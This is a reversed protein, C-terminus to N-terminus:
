RPPLPRVSGDTWLVGGEVQKPQAPVLRLSPAPAVVSPAAEEGGMLIWWFHNRINIDQHGGFELTLTTVFVRGAGYAYSAYVPRPDSSGEVLIVEAGAPLIGELSGHNHSCFGSPDVSTDDLDDATGQVGDPGVRFPHDPGVSFTFGGCESSDDAIGSLGPIQYGDGSVNDGAHVVLFGGGAVWAELASQADPHNVGLVPSSGNSASTLIVVSTSSPIGDQLAVTKAVSYDEGKTLGFPSSQLVVEDKNEGFWANYDKYIVIEGPRRAPGDVVDESITFDATGTPHAGDLTVTRSSPVVTGTEPTGPRVVWSGAMLGDFRFQGDADTATTAALDGHGNELAVELGAGAGEVTGVIHSLVTAGFVFPEGNVSVTYVADGREASPARGLLFGAPGDGNVVLRGDGGASWGGSFRPIPDGNVDYAVISVGTEEGVGLTPAAPDAIVRAPIPSLTLAVTNVLPEISLAREAAGQLDFGAPEDISVTYRGPPLGELLLLGDDGTTGDAATAGHADLVAIGVGAVAAGWPTRAHIELSGLAPEFALTAQASGREVRIDGEAPAAPVTTRLFDTGVELVGVETPGDATPWFVRNNDPILDDFGSGLIRVEDGPLAPDPDIGTLTLAPPSVLAGGPQFAPDAAGAMGPLALAPGSGDSPVVVLGAGTGVVLWAGNPSWSPRGTAGSVLAAAAGEVHLGGDAIWALRGDPGVAPFTAGGPVVTSRGSGTVDVMEISGGAVTLERPASWVPTSGAPGEASRSGDLNAFWVRGDREFAFRTGDPSVTPWTGEALVDAGSARRISGGDAYLLVSGDRSWAPGSAASGGISSATGGAAARTKLVGDEAFALTGSVVYAWARDELGTPTTAVVEAVGEGGATFTGDAEVALVAPNTSRWELPVDPLTAGADDVVTATLAGSAGPGRVLGDTDVTVSAAAAGPGSYSLTIEAPTAGGGGQAGVATTQVQVPPSTFLETDGELATITVLLTENVGAEVELQFDYVDQAPTVALVTDLVLTGDTREVRFHFHDVREFLARLAEEEAATAAPAGGPGALTLSPAPIFVPGAAADPGAPSDVCAALLLAAALAPLFRLGFRSPLM